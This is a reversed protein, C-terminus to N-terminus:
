KESTVHVECGGVKAENGLWSRKLSKAELVQQAQFTDVRLLKSCLVIPVEALFVDSSRVEGMLIISMHSLYFLTIFSEFSKEGSQSQYRASRVNLNMFKTKEHRTVIECTIKIYVCLDLLYMQNYELGSRLAGFSM